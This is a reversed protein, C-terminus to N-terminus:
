LPILTFLIFSVVEKVFPLVLPHELILGGAVNLILGEELLKNIVDDPIKHFHVEVKDWEGKRTGTKLNTLLVSGVTSAKGGSYGEIFQRAEKKDSPKERVIGEYVVVQDATILLTPETDKEENESTQLRPIIAEAKAEALAMVLDEPKDKRISKEDIDASVITFEYGMESLIERRAKSSSGLIIKFPSKSVSMKVGFSSQSLSSSSCRLERRRPLLLQSTPTARYLANMM